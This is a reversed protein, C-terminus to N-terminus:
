RVVRSRHPVTSRRTAGIMPGSARSPTPAALAHKTRSSAARPRNRPLIGSEKQLTPSPIASNEDAACTIPCGFATSECYSWGEYTCKVTNDGCPCEENSAACKIPSSLMTGSTDYNPVVCLQQEATCEEPCEESMGICYADWGSGCKKASDSKCIVPCDWDDASPRLHCYETWIM